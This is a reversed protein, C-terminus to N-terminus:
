PDYLGEDEEDEEDVIVHSRDYYNRRKQKISEHEDNFCITRRKSWPDIDVRKRGFLPHRQQLTNLKWELEEESSYRANIDLSYISTYFLRLCPRLINVLREKPFEDHIVIHCKKSHSNNRKRIMARCTNYLMTVDGNRIYNEIAVDRILVADIKSFEMLDFNCLFYRHFLTSMVVDQSKMFFYVSYLIAKSFPVNNYPNKIALPEAIFMPSNSLSSEILKKMDMTTFLYRSGDQYITMVNRGFPDIHNMIMDTNNKIPARRKKIMNGFRYFAHCHKQCVQFIQLFQDKQEQSYFPNNLITQLYGFKQPITHLLDNSIYISLTIKLLADEEGLKINSLLCAFLFPAPPDRKTPLTPGRLPPFSFLSNPQYM